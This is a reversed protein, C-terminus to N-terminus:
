HRERTSRLGHDARAAPRCTAELHERLARLDANAQRVMGPVALRTLM